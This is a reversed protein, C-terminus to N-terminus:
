CSAAMPFYKQCVSYIWLESGHKIKGGPREAIRVVAEFLVMCAAQALENLKIFYDLSNGWHYPIQKIFRFQSGFLRLQAATM